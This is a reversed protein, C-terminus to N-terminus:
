TGVCRARRLGTLVKLGAVRGDEASLEEAGVNELVRAGSHILDYTDRDAWPSAV